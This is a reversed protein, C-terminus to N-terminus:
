RTSPDGGGVGEYPRRFLRYGTVLSFAFLVAPIALLAYEWSFDSRTDFLLIALLVLLGLAFGGFMAAYPGSRDVPGSAESSVSPPREGPFDVRVAEAAEGEVRRAPDLQLAEGIADTSLKLRVTLATHDVDDVEEWPVARLDHQLPPKGLEIALYLRGERELVTMVKGAPEGTRSEVVYEELGVSGTGASPVEYTWRAQEM